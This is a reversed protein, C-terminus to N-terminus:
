QRGRFFGIQINLGGPEGKGSTINGNDADMEAVSIRHVANLQDAPINSRVADEVGKFFNVYDIGIIAAPEIQREDTGLQTNVKLTHIGVPVQHVIAPPMIELAAEFGNLTLKTDVPIDLSDISIFSDPQPPTVHIGEVEFGQIREEGVIFFIDDVQFGQFFHQKLLQRRIRTVEVQKERNGSIKRQQEPSIRDRINNTNNVNRQRMHMISATERAENEKGRECM